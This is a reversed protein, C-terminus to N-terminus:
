VLDYELAAGRIVPSTGGSASKRIQLELRADATPNTIAFSYFGPTSVILSGLTVLGTVNVVQIELTRDSVTVADFICTGNSYNYGRNKLWLFSAVTTFSASTASDGLPKSSLTFSIRKVGALFNHAATLNLIDEFGNNVVLEGADISSYVNPDDAWIPEEVHQLTYYQGPDIVQGVWARSVATNNKMRKAM